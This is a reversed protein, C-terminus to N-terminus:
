YHDRNGMAFRGNNGDWFIQFQFDGDKNYLNLYVYHTDLREVNGTFWFDRYIAIAENKNVTADVRNTAEIYTDEALEFRYRDGYRARLQELRRSDEPTPNPSCSWSILAAAVVVIAAFRRPMVNSEAELVFQEAM